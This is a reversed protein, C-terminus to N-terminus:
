KAKSEVIAGITALVLTCYAVVGATDAADPLGQAHAAVAVAISVIAAVCAIAKVISAIGM